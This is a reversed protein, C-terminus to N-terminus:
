HASARFFKHPLKQLGDFQAASRPPLYGLAQPLDQLVIKGNLQPYAPKLAVYQHGFGGGICMFVHPGHFDALEKEFPLILVM